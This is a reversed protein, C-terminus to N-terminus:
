IPNIMQVSSLNRCCVVLTDLKVQLIGEFELICKGRLKNRLGSVIDNHATCDIELIRVRLVPKGTLTRRELWTVLHSFDDLIDVSQLDFACIQLDEWKDAFCSGDNGLSFFSRICNAHLEIYHVAPFATCICAATFASISGSLLRLQHLVPFKTFNQNQFSISRNTTECCLRSLQPAVLADLLPVPDDFYFTLSKLSPFHLSNSPFVSPESQFYASIVLTTLMGSPQSLNFPIPPVFHGFWIDLHLSRVTQPIQIAELWDTFSVELEELSPANEHELFQPCPLGDIGQLSFRVLSPFSPEISEIEGMIIDMADLECHKVIFSRWRPACPLVIQLLHQLLEPDNYSAWDHIKIDLLRSGSRQIHANVLATSWQPSLSISTWFMPFNLITDRWRRSVMALEQKRHRHINCFKSVEAHIALNLIFSLLESPLSNIPAPKRLVLESIKGRLAM